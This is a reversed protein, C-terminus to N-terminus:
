VTADSSESKIARIEHMIKRGNNTLSWFLAYSGSVTKSYTIDVLRYMSLQISITEYDESNIEFSGADGIVQRGLVSGLHARVKDDNPYDRLFPSLLAFIKMWTIDISWEEITASRSRTAYFKHKGRVHFIDNIDAINELNIIAALDSERDKRRLTENEKRLENIEELLTESSVKDARVWGIAPFIRICKSIAQSVLGPLETANNWFKVLRGKGVNDKFETLKRRLEENIESKGLPILEPDAHIFAIIPIKREVAYNYEQETFSIGSSSLSGYRGGIILIYYDCDNIVRKIYEFQEEDVAPFLEMGAPICDLDLLAQIVRSREEKLDSYTSSV